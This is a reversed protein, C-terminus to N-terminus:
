EIGLAKKYGTLLRIIYKRHEDLAEEDEPSQLLAVVYIFILANDLELSAPDGTMEVPLNIAIFPHENETFVISHDAVVQSNDLDEANARVISVAKILARNPEGDPIHALAHTCERVANAYLGFKFALFASALEHATPASIGAFIPRMRELYRNLFQEM